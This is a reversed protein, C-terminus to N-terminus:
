SDESLDNLSAFEGFYKIAAENYAAAAEYETAFMGIDLKKGNVKIQTRWSRPTGRAIDIARRSVGKYKSTTQRSSKRRNRNNHTQSVLRLNHRCNNLTNGDVHDVVRGKGANMILRHMLLNKSRAYFRDSLNHPARLNAVHWKLQSLWEFDEDDVLAVQGQTLKIEKM